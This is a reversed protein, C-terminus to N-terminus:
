DLHRLTSKRIVLEPQLWQKEQIPAAIGGRKARIAEDLLTIAACGVKHQPQYITTLPPAFFASEPTNDFGIVGLQQPIQINLDIAAKLVGLAIQDNSAFVADIEPFQALLQHFVSEGSEASWVGYGVQEPRPSLDAASLAEEWGLKRYRAAWWHMDGTILGIHRYGQALLHETAMHGGSRNDIAVFPTAPHDGADIFVRPLDLSRSKEAFRDFDEGYAGGAWIIGDVQNSLLAEIAKDAAAEDGHPVLRILLSYDLHNAQEEMGALASAPGFKLLDNTIVGLNRSFQKVLGRALANPRYGRLRIVELVRQKTEASVDPHNNIVRSVTQHSVGVERAIDKISIRSISM